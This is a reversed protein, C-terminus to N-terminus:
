QAFRVALAIHCFEDFGGSPVWDFVANFPTLRRQIWSM